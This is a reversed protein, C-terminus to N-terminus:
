KKIAQQLKIKEEDKMKYQKEIKFYLQFDGAKIRDLARAMQIPTLFPLGDATPICFIQTIAIRHAISQCITAGKDGTKDVCEARTTASISSGDEAFFSFEVDMSIRGSSSRQSNDTSIIKPTCFIKHKQFLPQVSNYVEEIGRFQFGNAGETKQTKSIAKIDNQVALIQKYIMPTKTEM